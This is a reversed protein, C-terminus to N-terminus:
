LYCSVNKYRQTSANAVCVCGCETQRLFANVCGKPLRKMMNDGNHGLWPGNHGPWPGPYMSHICIIKSKIFANAPQIWWIAYKINWPYIRWLRKINKNMNHGMTERTTNIINLSFAKYQLSLWVDRYFAREVENTRQRVSALREAKLHIIQWSDWLNTTKNQGCAQQSSENDSDCILMVSCFHIMCIIIVNNYFISYIVKHTDRHLM